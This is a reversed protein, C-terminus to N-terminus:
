FGVSGCRGRGLVGFFEGIIEFRKGEREFDV